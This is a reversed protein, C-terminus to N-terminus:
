VGVVPLMESDHPAAHDAFRGATGAAAIAANFAASSDSRGTPDAAYPAQTVDIGTTCVDSQLSRLSTSDVTAVMVCVLSIAFVAIQTFRSVGM